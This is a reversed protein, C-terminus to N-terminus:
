VTIDKPAQAGRRRHWQRMNTSQTGAHLHDPNVCLKNDSPAGLRHCQHCAYKGGIARGQRYLKLTLSLRHALVVRGRFRLIGYGSSQVAGQWLWCGASTVLCRARLQEHTM